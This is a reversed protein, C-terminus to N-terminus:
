AGVSARRRGGARGTEDVRRHTCEDDCDTVEKVVPQRAHPRSAISDGRPNRIPLCVALRFISRVTARAIAHMAAIRLSPLPKPTYSKYRCFASRFARPSPPALVILCNTREDPIVKYGMGAGGTASPAVGMQPRPMQPNASLGQMKAMMLQDIEPALEGAFALKLPIVVITQQEDRVDLSGIIQLLREFGVHDDFASAM